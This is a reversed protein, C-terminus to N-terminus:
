LTSKRDAEGMNPVIALAHRYSTVAEEYRMLEHLAAGTYLHLLAKSSDIDLATKFRILAEAANQAQLLESGEKFLQQLQNSRNDM